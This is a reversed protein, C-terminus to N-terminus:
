LAFARAMQALSALSLSEHRTDRMLASAEVACTTEVSPAGSGTEYGTLTMLM